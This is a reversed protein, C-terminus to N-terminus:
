ADREGGAASRCRSAWVANTEAKQWDGKTEHHKAYSDFQTAAGRLAEVALQKRLHEPSWLAKVAIIAEELLLPRMDGVSEEASIHDRLTKLCEVIEGETIPYRILDRM